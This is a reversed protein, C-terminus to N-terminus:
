NQKRQLEAILADAIELSMQAIMEPRSKGSRMCEEAIGPAYFEYNGIIASAIQGVFRIRVQQRCEHEKNMEAVEQRLAEVQGQKTALDFQREQETM